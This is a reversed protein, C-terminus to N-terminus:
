EIVIWQATRIILSSFIVFNYSIKWLHTLWPLFPLPPSPCDHYWPTHVDCPQSPPSLPWGLASAHSQAISSRVKCCEELNNLGTKCDWLSRGKGPWVGATELGSVLKEIHLLKLRIGCYCLHPTRWPWSEFTLPFFITSKRSCSFSCPKEAGLVSYFNNDWYSLSCTRALIYSRIPKNRLKM